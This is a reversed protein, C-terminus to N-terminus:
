DHRYPIWGVFVVASSALFGIVFVGFLAAVFLFGSAFVVSRMQRDRDAQMQDVVLLWDTDPVPVYAHIVAINRTGPSDM